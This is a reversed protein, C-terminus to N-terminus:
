IYIIRILLFLKEKLYPLIWKIDVKIFLRGARCGNKTTNTPQYPNNKTLIKNKLSLQM